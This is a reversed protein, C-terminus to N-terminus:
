RIPTFPRGAIPAIVVRECDGIAGTGTMAKQLEARLGLCLLRMTSGMAFRRGFAVVWFDSSAGAAGGYPVVAFQACETFEVGNSTKLAGARIGECSTRDAAYGVIAASSDANAISAWVVGLPPHPSACGILAVAAVVVLTRM